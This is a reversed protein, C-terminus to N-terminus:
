LWLAEFKAAALTARVEAGAWTALGADALTQLAGEINPLHGYQALVDAVRVASPYAELLEGLLIRQEDEPTVDGLRDRSERDLQTTRSTRQNTVHARPVSLM